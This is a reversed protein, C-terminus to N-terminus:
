AATEGTDCPFLDNFEAEIGYRRFISILKKATPIDPSRIENEYNSVTSQECELEVALAAQTLNIKQRYEKIRNM